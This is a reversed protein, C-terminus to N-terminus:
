PGDTIKNGNHRELYEIRNQLKNIQAWALQKDMKNQENEKVQKRLATQYQRTENLMQVYKAYDELNTKYSYLAGSLVGVVVSVTSLAGFILSLGNTSKKM